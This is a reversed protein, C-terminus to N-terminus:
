GNISAGVSELVAEVVGAGSPGGRGSPAIKWLSSTRAM